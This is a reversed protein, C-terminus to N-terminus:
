SLEEITRLAESGIPFKQQARRGDFAEPNGAREARMTQCTRATDAFDHSFPNDVAVRFPIHPTQIHTAKAGVVVALIVGDCARKFGVRLIVIDVEWALFTEGAAPQAKGWKSDSQAVQAAVKALLGAPFAGVPEFGVFLFGRMTMLRFAPRTVVPRASNSVLVDLGAFISTQKILCGEVLEFDAAGASQFEQVVHAGVIDVLRNPRDDVSLAQVLAAPDFAVEGNGSQFVVAEKDDGSSRESLM